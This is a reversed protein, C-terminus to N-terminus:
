SASAIPGEVKVAPIRKRVSAIICVAYTHVDEVSKRIFMKFGAEDDLELDRQMLSSLFNMFTHSRAIDHDMFYPYHRTYTMEADGGAGFMRNDYRAVTAIVTSKGAKRLRFFDLLRYDPERIGLLMQAVEQQASTLTVPRGNVDWGQM